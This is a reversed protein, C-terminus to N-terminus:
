LCLFFIDILLHILNHLLLCFYFNFGSKIPRNVVIIKPHEGKPLDKKSGFDYAYFPKIRNNNGDSGTGQELYRNLYGIFPDNTRLNSISGSPVLGRLSGANRKNDTRGYDLVYKEYYDGNKGAEPVYSRVYSSTLLLLLLLFTMGVM